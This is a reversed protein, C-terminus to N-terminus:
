WRVMDRHQEHAPDLVAGLFDMFGDLGRRGGPSCRRVGDVFAPYEMDPDGDRVEEVIM